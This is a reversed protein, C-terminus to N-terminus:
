GVHDRASRASARTVRITAVGLLGLAVLAGGSMALAAGRGGWTPDLVLHAVSAVLAGVVLSAAPVVPRSRGLWWQTVVSYIGIVGVATALWPVLAAAGVFSEPYVLRVVIDALFAYAVVALIVSGATVAVADRLMGIAVGAQAAAVRPMLVIGIAFSVMGMPMVLARAASYDALATPALTRVWYVDLGLIAAYATGSILAPIAFATMARMLKLSPRPRGALIRRVPGAALEIVLIPVLYTFAYIAVVVPVSAVDAWSAVVLLVIQALNAGIRYGALLTFRGLGRLSGFYYADISLGLVVLALLIPDAHADTAVFSGVLASALLLPLGAVLSSWWWAGLPRDAPAALFRTLSTPFGALVLEGVFFGTAIYFYVLAFEDRPLTRVLVVPFLFGLARAIVNGAFM